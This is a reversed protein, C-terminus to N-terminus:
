EFILTARWTSTVALTTGADKFVLNCVLIEGAVPTDADLVIKTEKFDDVATFSVTTDGEANLTIVSPDESPACSAWQPDVVVNGTSANAIALLRLKLQGAPLTGMPLDFQLCWTANATLDTANAVGLGDMHKAGSGAGVHINGFVMGATVPVASSPPIPGAAM